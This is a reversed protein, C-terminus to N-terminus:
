GTVGMGFLGEAMMVTLFITACVLAVAWGFARTDRDHGCTAIIVSTFFAVWVVDM